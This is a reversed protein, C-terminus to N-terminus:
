LFNYIRRNNQIKPVNNKSISRLLAPIRTKPVPKLNHKQCYEDYLAEMQDRFGKFKGALESHYFSVFSNQPAELPKKPMYKTNISYHLDKGKIKVGVFGNGHNTKDRPDYCHIKRHRKGIEIGFKTTSVPEIKKLEAWKVYESYLTKSFIRTNPSALELNENMWLVISNEKGNKVLELTGKHYKRVIQATIPSGEHALYGERNLIESIKQFALGTSRLQHIREIAPQDLKKRTAAAGRASYKRCSFVHFIDLIESVLEAEESENLTKETYIIKISHASCIREFIETGFRFARDRHTLLITSNDHQSDLIQDLLRNLGSRSYSLGSAIDTFVTPETNFHEQSYEKLKEVQRQLGSKSDNDANFNKAQSNTSVRCYALVSGSNEEEKEIGAFALVDDLRFRRHGKNGVRYVPLRNEYDPHSWRRVSSPSAGLIKCVDRLALFSNGSGNFSSM